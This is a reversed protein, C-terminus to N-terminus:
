SARHEENTSSFWSVFHGVAEDTGDFRLWGAALSESYLAWLGSVLRDSLPWEPHLARLREVLVAAEHLRDERVNELVERLFALELVDATAGAMHRRWEVQSCDAESYRLGGSTSVEYVVADGDVELVRYITEAGFTLRDGPAPDIRPDRMAQSSM